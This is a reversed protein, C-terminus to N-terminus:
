LRCPIPNIYVYPPNQIKIKATDLGRFNIELDENEAWFGVSQWKQCDLSYQGPKNVKMKFEYTGDDNVKCSDLIIKDFGHREVIEMNFRNDPFQVKGKITITKQAFVSSTSVMMCALFM